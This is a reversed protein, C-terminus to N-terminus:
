DLLNSQGLLSRVLHVLVEARGILGLRHIRGALRIGIGPMRSRVETHWEMGGHVETPRVHARAHTVRRHHRRRM